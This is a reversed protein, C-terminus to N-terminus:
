ILQIWRSSRIVMALSPDGEHLKVGRLNEAARRWERDIQGIEILLAKKPGAERMKGQIWSRIAAVSGLAPKAIQIPPREMMLSSWAKRRMSESIKRAQSAKAPRSAKRRTAKISGQRAQGSGKQPRLKRGSGKPNSAEMGKTKKQAMLAQHLADSM